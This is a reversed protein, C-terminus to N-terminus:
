DQSFKIKSSYGGLFVAPFIMTALLKPYDNLATNLFGIFGIIAIIMVVWSFITLFKRALVSIAPNEKEIYQYMGFPVRSLFQFALHFQLNVLVGIWIKEGITEEILILPGVISLIFTALSMLKYHKSITEITM